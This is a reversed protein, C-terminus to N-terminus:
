SRSGSRVGCTDVIYIHSPEETLRVLPAHDARAFRTIALLVAIEDRHRWGVQHMPRAVVIMGSCLWTGAANDAASVQLGFLRFSGM